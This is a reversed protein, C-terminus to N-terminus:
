FTYKITVGILSINIGWCAVCYPCLKGLKLSKRVLLVTAMATASILIYFIVINFNVAIAMSAYGLIGFVAIPIGFISRDKPDNFTAMSCFIAGIAFFIGVISVITVIEKM